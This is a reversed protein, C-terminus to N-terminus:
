SIHLPENARKSSASVVAITLRAADSKKSTREAFSQGANAWTFTRVTDSTNIKNSEKCAGFKAGAALM